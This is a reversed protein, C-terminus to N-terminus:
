TECLNLFQARDDNAGGNTNTSEPLGTIVLNSKRREHDRLAESIQESQLQKIENPASTNSGKKWTLCNLRWCPLRRQSLTWHRKFRSLTSKMSQRCEECVLGSNAIYEVLADHARAPVSTCDLSDITIGITLLQQSITRAKRSKFWDSLTKKM